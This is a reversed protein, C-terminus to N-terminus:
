GVAASPAPLSATAFRRIVEALVAGKVPKGLFDNMGADLSAARDEASSAATLAVVPIAAWEACSGRIARTATLGDMVPMHLDMLVMDFRNEKLRTLAEEGNEAEIVEVNLGHRRCLDIWRQSFMGYRSALVTDGPSLTNTVAAEWAGTGTAPFLIAEGDTTKLIRKVGALVPKLMEVFTSSRHDISPFDVARRLEEPINTPGPIFVPNQTSM